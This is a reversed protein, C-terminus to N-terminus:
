ISCDLRSPIEKKYLKIGLYHAYTIAISSYHINSTKKNDYVCYDLLSDPVQNIDRRAICGM